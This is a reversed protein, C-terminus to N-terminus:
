SLDGAGALTAAAELVMWAQLQTSLEVPIGRPQTTSAPQLPDPSFVLVPPGSRAARGRLAAASGTGTPHESRGAWLAEATDTVLTAAQTRADADLGPCRAALALYRTLIGTFLGGDHGGHTILARHRGRTVVLRENVAAVLAAARDLSAPDGLSLLAGLVLGQNYTYVDRVLVGTVPRPGPGPAPDLRVGDLFLGTDPERLAAYMWDLLRQARATDGIRAAFIAAPATAPINKFDRATNWWLGGGLADTEARRLHGTIARAAVTALRGAPSHPQLAHLRHAALLLWGMDDYYSNTFVFVNRLRMTRLLRHARAAYRDATAASGADRWRLAADVLCDLQHALWWYNWPGRWDRPGPWTVDPLYTGPLGLARRGFLTHVAAAAAEARAAASPHQGSDPAAHNM